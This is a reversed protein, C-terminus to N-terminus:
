WRIAEPITSCYSFHVRHGYQFRCIWIFDTKEHCDILAFRMITNQHAWCVLSNWYANWTTNEITSSSSDYIKRASYQTKQRPTCGANTHDMISPTNELSRTSRNWLQLSIASLLCALPRFLVYPLAESTSRNTPKNRPITGQWQQRPSFGPLFRNRSRHIPHFSRYLSTSYMNTSFQTPKWFHPVFFLFVAAQKLWIVLLIVENKLTLARPPLGKEVGTPCLIPSNHRYACM